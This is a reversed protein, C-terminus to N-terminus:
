IRTKSSIYPLSISVKLGLVRIKIITFIEQNEDKARRPVIANGGQKLGLLKAHCVLIVSFCQFNVIVM